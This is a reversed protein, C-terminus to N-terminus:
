MAIAFVHWQVGRVVKHARTNKGKFSGNDNNSEKEDVDIETQLTERSSTQTVDSSGTEQGKEADDNSVHRRTLRKLRYACSM